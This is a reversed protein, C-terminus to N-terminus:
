RASASSACNWMRVRARGTTSSHRRAVRASASCARGASRRSSDTSARAARQPHQQQARACVRAARAPCQASVPPSACAARKPARLNSARMSRTSRRWSRLTDRRSPNESRLTFDGPMSTLRPVQKWLEHGVIAEWRQGRSQGQQLVTRQPSRGAPLLCRGLWVRGRQVLSPGRVILPIPKRIGHCPVVVNDNRWRNDRRPVRDSGCRLQVTRQMTGM